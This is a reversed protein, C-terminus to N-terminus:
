TGGIVINGVRVGVGIHVQGDEGSTGAFSEDGIEPIPFRNSDRQTIAQKSPRTSLQKASQADASVDDHQASM